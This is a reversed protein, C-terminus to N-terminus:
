KRQTPNSNIFLTLKKTGRNIELVIEIDGLQWIRGKWIDNKIENNEEDWRYESRM